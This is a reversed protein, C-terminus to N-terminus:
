EPRKSIFFASLHAWLRDQEHDSLEEGGAWHWMMAVTDAAWDLYQDYMDVTMVKAKPAKRMLRAIDWDTMYLVGLIFGFVMSGLCAWVIPNLYLHM